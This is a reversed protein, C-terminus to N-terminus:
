KLFQRKALETFLGAKAMLEDFTGSEVIRGADMVLIRDAQLVTSL